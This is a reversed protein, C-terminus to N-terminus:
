ICPTEARGHLSKGSRLDAPQAGGGDTTHWSLARAEETRDISGLDVRHLDSATAVTANRDRRACSAGDHCLARVLRWPRSYFSISLSPQTICPPQSTLDDPAAPFLFDMNVHSSTQVSGGEM